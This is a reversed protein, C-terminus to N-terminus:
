RPLALMSQRERVWTQRHGACRGELNSGAERPEWGGVTGWRRRGSRRFCGGIRGEVVRGKSM